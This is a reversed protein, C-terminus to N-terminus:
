ASSARPTRASAGVRARPTFAVAGNAQASRRVHVGRLRAVYAGAVIAVAAIALVLFVILATRGGGRKPAAPQQAPAAPPYVYPTTATRSMTAPPLPLAPSSPDGTMIANTPLDDLAGDFGYPVPAQQQAPASQPHPPQHMPAAHMPPQQPPGAPRQNTASPMPPAFLQGSPPAPIGPQSPTPGTRPAAPPAVAQM